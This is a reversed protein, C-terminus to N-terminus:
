GADRRAARRFLVAAGVFLAIFMANLGLLEFVSTVPARHRGELLAIVAIVATAAAMALLVRAMGRARLRAAAAGAIGIAFVGLYMMDARDGSEGIVGVAGILWFLFLVSGVAMGLGSRYARRRQRAPLAPAHEERWSADAALGRVMRSLLALAIRREGAGRSREHAVHDHVDAALEGRRREAVPGPLGRTYLRVWWAVVAAIREATM